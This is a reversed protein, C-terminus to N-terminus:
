YDYYRAGKSDTGPWDFKVTKTAEKYLWGYAGTAEAPFDGFVYLMTNKDNFPNKPVETLAFAPSNDATATGDNVTLNYIVSERLLRLNGKAAAEKAQLSNNQFEPIVMAAIASLIVLIIM